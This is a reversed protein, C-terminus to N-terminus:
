PLDGCRAFGGGAPAEGQLRPPGRPCAGQGGRGGVGGDHHPRAGDPDPFSRTFLTTHFIGRYNSFSPHQPFFAGDTLTAPTKLSLSVIWLVPVLALAIVVIDTLGWLARKEGSVSM